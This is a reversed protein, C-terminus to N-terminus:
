PRKEPSNGTKQSKETHVPRVSGFWGRQQLLAVVNLAYALTVPVGPVVVDLLGKEGARMHVACLALTAAFGAVYGANFILAAETLRRQGGHELVIWAPLLPLAIAACALVALGLDPEGRAILQPLMVVLAGGDMLLVFISYLRAAIVWESCPLEPPGPEATDMWRAKRVIVGKKDMETRLQGDM